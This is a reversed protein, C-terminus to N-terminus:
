KKRRNLLALGMLAVAGTAVWLMTNSQEGTQPNQMLNSKNDYVTVKRTIKTINDESDSVSYVIGYRGPKNTDVTGLVTIKNTLDGDEYDYASVGAMLDFKSGKKIKIDNAGIIVPKNNSVVVVSIVKTTSVGKSDTVEYVVEYNGVKSTNVNNSVINIKNTIDGDEADFATVDSLPNFETGVKIIKDNAEITPANNIEVKIPRVVVERKSETKNGDSDTVTYTLEYTGEVNVDVRGMVKIDKTIDGDEKDTAKVGALPEFQDGVKLEVRDLGEIVPAENSRVVVERKIETKKGYSDTVSYILEYTGEVNVDVRGSVKIDKTIDRGDKDTAKVGALPEFKDGVKLEVKNLGEIVPAGIIIVVVEREFETVNGDRDQIIYKITYQGPIHSDFNGQEIKINMQDITDRDDVITIGDM